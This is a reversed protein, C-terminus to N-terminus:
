VAAAAGVVFVNPWSLNCESPEVLKSQLERSAGFRFRLGANFHFQM